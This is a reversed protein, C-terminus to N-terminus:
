NGEVVMKVLGFFGSKELNCMAISFRIKRELYYETPTVAVCKYKGVNIVPREGVIFDVFDDGRLVLHFSFLKFIEKEEPSLRKIHYRIIRTFDKIILLPAKAIVNRRLGDTMILARALASRKGIKIEKIVGEGGSGVM